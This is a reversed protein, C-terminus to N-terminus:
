YDDLGLQEIQPQLQPIVGSTSKVVTGSGDVVYWHPVGKDGMEKMLRGSPDLFVKGAVGKAMQLLKDEVDYAIVPKIGVKSGQFRKEMDNVIPVAVKCARCWPALVVVVCREKGTCPDGITSSSAPKLGVDALKVPWFWWAALLGALVVLLLTGIPPDRPRPAFRAGHPQKDLAVPPAYRPEAPVFLPSSEDPPPGRDAYPDYALELGSSPLPRPRPAVPAVRKPEVPSFFPDPESDAPHAFHPAGPVPDAPAIAATPDPEPDAPYAFHPAGPAPAAALASAPIPASAPMAPAAPSPAPPSAQAQAAGAPDLRRALEAAEGHDLWISNCSKCRDLRLGRFRDFEFPSLPQACAPCANNRAAPPPEQQRTFSRGAERLLRPDSSLRQLEGKELWLGGCTVCGDIQVTNIAKRRLLDSCVPCRLM